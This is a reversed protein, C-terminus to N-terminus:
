RFRRFSGTVVGWIEFQMGEKIEIVPFTPNAPLLRPMGSKAKGLTKITFEGDVVAMVINGVKAQKSRDVVAKDGSLLGANIMSEGQITVFFTADQQDILFENADLRKEVHDDAPSPFGAPVKSSYLNLLVRSPNIAPLIFEPADSVSPQKLKRKYAALFDIIVPKQSIPVRVTTTEEQYPSWPKRGAGLRKGGPKNKQDESMKFITVAIM